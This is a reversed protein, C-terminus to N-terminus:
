GFCTGCLTVEGGVTESAWGELDDRVNSCAKVYDRTWHLSEGGKFHRCGSKHLVLYHPNPKRETNIFHGNPNGEQWEFFGDDDDRFITVSQRHTTLMPSEERLRINAGDKEFLASYNHTRAHVQNVEVVSGDRKRYLGRRNVADALERAAMWQNENERLVQALAEHLTRRGSASTGGQTIGLVGEGRAIEWLLESRRAELAELEARAGVLVEEIMDGSRELADDVDSM